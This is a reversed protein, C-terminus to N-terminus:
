QNESALLIILYYNTCFRCHIQYPCVIIIPTHVFDIYQIM